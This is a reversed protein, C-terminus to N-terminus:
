LGARAADRGRHHHRQHWLCPRGQASGRGAARPHAPQAEMTAVKLRSSTAGTACAAGNSRASAARAAPSSAASRPRRTPRPTCGCNRAAFPRPDARRDPGHDRRARRCLPRARHRAGPRLGLSRAARRGLAADGPRLQRHRHRAADGPHRACPLRGADGAGAGRQDALGRHRRHCPRAPAEADALVLLLRPEEAQGAGSQGRTRIGGLRAKLAAIDYRTTM